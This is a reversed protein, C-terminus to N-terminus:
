GCSHAEWRRLAEEDEDPAELRDHPLSVRDACSRRNQPGCASLFPTLKHHITAPVEIMLRPARPTPLAFEGGLVPARGPMAGGYM